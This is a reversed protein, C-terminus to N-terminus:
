KLKIMKKTEKYGNEASIQYYYIGSGIPKGDANRGNWQVKHRGALKQGKVLTVIERGLIDFIKLTVFGAEPIRYEINTIPNFPNPYNPYLVLHDTEPLKVTKEAIKERYGNFELSYLSYTTESGAPPNKDVYCYDHQYGSNGAATMRAILSDSNETKRFLEFYGTNIESATTWFIEAQGCSTEINFTLLEVPLSVDEVNFPFNASFPHVDFYATVDQPDILLIDITHTPEANSDVDATLILNVGSNTFRYEINEFLLTSSYSQQGLLSDEETTILGNEDLDAYLSFSNIDSADATGGISFEINDFYVLYPSQDATFTYGGLEALNDGPAIGGNMTANSGGNIGTVTFQPSSGSQQMDVRGYGFINDYGGAGLDTAGNLIKQKVEDNTLNPYASWLAAACAAVHPVAASTGFFRIQGSDPPYEQGFSGAGTIINGDVAVVDPKNRSEYTYSPYSYIRSPGISSFYEIVDPSNYRVAGVAIVDNVVPQGNISGPLNYFEDVIAYGGFNYALEVRRNAGSVREIVVNLVSAGSVSVGMYAFPETPDPQYCPIDYRTTLSQNVLHLTYVSSSSGYPENWQLFIYFIQGEDLTIQQGYDGGGFNHAQSIGPIAPSPTIGSYDGEYHEDQSNGASSAYVIDYDDIVDRVASAISGEEFYPETFYGIDDVIVSCGAAALDNISNIFELSSQIGESFYLDAGPALDHVIELMATGEDGGESNDIVNVTAPLDSTLQASAINDVGDSIVGVRIGSGDAGLYQRVIDTKHISDGESTVSGSRLFGRECESINRVSPNRAILEIQGPSLWCDIDNLSKNRAIIKANLRILEAIVEDFGASCKIRVLINNQTDIRYFLRNLEAKSLGAAQQQAFQPNTKIETMLDILFPSINKAAMSKRLVSAQPVIPVIQQSFLISSLACVIVMIKKLVM